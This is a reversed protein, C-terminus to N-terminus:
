SSGENREHSEHSIRQGLWGPKGAFTQALGVGLISFVVITLGPIQLSFDVLSHVSALLGTLLGAVPYIKGSHRTRSGYVLSAFIVFLACLVLSAFPVGQESAIELLTNHARDWVGWATIDSPRYSPFTWAFTGLGTGLWPHDLILRLVAHYVSLRAPDTLGQSGIRADVGGGMIELLIVSGLIIGAILFLLTKGSANKKRLCSFFLGACTLSFLMSGARSGTMFTASMLLMFMVLCLMAGRPLDRLLLAPPHTDASIRLSPGFVKKFFLLLWLIACGGFYIAATNRNVFTGTLVTQYSIKERWLLMKPDWIFSLIGYIAYIAGSWAALRLLTRAFARHSGLLFGIVLSLFAAMQPGAAFFSQNRVVAVYQQLQVELLLSTQRWIPNILDEALWPHLSTQEHFVFGWAVAVILASLLFVLDAKNLKLKHPVSLIAVVGLLIVWLAIAIEDVSGFPLPALAIVVCFLYLAVRHRIAVM